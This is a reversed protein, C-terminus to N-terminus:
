DDDDERKAQQAQDYVENCMVIWRARDANCYIALTAAIRLLTASSYAPRRKGTQGRHRVSCSM